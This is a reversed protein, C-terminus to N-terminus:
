HSLVYYVLIYIAQIYHVLTFCFLLCGMLTKVEM